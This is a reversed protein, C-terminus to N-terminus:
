FGEIKAASLKERLATVQPHQFFASIQAARGAGIGSEAQWQVESRAALAPWTDESELHKPAPMGLAALWTRFPRETASRLSELLKARSREGLGPIDALDEEQWDLWDLLGNLRGQDILKMWTGPGIGSLALGQKGSLWILRALFQQECGPIPQWCSLPHYATDDPPNVPARYASRLVVDDLRAITLGALSIAVQDGPRIDLTKWRQLSGVSVHKILRDDLQVPELTLVPTIRGSRGITFTVQRVEALAQAM